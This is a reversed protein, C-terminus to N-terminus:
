LVFTPNAAALMLKQYLVAASSYAPLHLRSSHDGLVVVVPYSDDGQDQAEDTPACIELQFPSVGSPPNSLSSAGLPDMQHQCAMWSELTESRSAKAGTLYQHMARRELYSLEELIVWFSHHLESERDYIAHRQLESLLSLDTDCLRGRLSSATSLLLCRSPVISLLGKRVSHLALRRCLGDPDGGDTQGDGDSQPEGSVCGIRNPPKVLHDWLSHSIFQLPLKVGSRWAIGLIQGFQFYLQLVQATTLENTKLSLLRTNVDLEVTKYAAACNLGANGHDKSSVKSAVPIFLPFVPSQIETTVCELLRLYQVNQTRKQHEDQPEETGDSADAINAPTHSEDVVDFARYISFLDFPTEYARRLQSTGSVQVLHESLQAFLCQHSQKTMAWKKTPMILRTRSQNWFAIPKSLPQQIRIRPLDLEGSGAESPVSDSTKATCDSMLGMTPTASRRLEADILKEKQAQFLYGISLQCLQSLDSLDPLAWGTSELIVAIETTVLAAVAPRSKNEASTRNIKSEDGEKPKVYPKISGFTNMEPLIFQIVRFICRNIFLLYGIRALLMSERDDQTCELGDFVFALVSPDSIDDKIDIFHLYHPDPLSRSVAMADLLETVKRDLTVTDTSLSMWEDQNRAFDACDMFREVQEGNEVMSQVGNDHMDLPMEAISTINQIHNRHVPFESRNELMERCAVMNWSAFERKGDDVIEYWLEHHYEGLIICQGMETFISDGHAFGYKETTSPRLDLAVINGLEIERCVIERRNWKQYVTSVKKFLYLLKDQSQGKRTLADSHVVLDQLADLIPLASANQSRNAKSSEATSYSLSPPVLTIQDDKNYMSVAPYWRCSATTKGNFKLNSAAIGLNEGNRNFALTKADCDLTVQIIDGQKFIEGYSHLKTKNHWVAKNALFGYGFADSGIYNELNADSTCVGIFINKSVCTDIRVSWIHIGQDFSAQTRVTRWKKNQLNKVTLNQNLIILNKAVANADFEFPPIAPTQLFVEAENIGRMQILEEGAVDLTTTEIPALRLLYRTDPALNRIAFSGKSPLSNNDPAANCVIHVNKDAIWKSSLDFGFQRRAELSFLPKHYIDLSDGRESTAVDSVAIKATEGAPPHYSWRASAHTSSFEEIYFQLHPRDPLYNESPASPNLQVFILLGVLARTLDTFFVSSSKEKQFRTVFLELLHDVQAAKVFKSLPESLWQEEMYFNEFTSEAAPLLNDPKHIQILSLIRRMATFATYKWPLFDHMTGAALSALLQFFPLSFCSSSAVKMAAKCTEREEPLRASRIQTEVHTLLVGLIWQTWLANSMTLSVSANSSQYNRPSTANSYASLIQQQIEGFLLEFLPMNKESTETADSANISRQLEVSLMGLFLKQLRVSQENASRKDLDLMTNVVMEHNELGLLVKVFLKFRIAHESNSIWKLSFTYSNNFGSTDGSSMLLSFMIERAYQVSLIVGATLWLPIVENPAFKAHNMVDNAAPKDHFCIYDGSCDLQRVFLPRSSAERFSYVEQPMKSPWQYPQEACLFPNMNGVEHQSSLLAKHEACTVPLIGTTSSLSHMTRNRAQSETHPRLNRISYAHQDEAYSNHHVQFPLTHSATRLALDDASRTARDGFQLMMMDLISSAVSCTGRQDESVSQSSISMTPAAAAAVATADKEMQELIWSIAGSDNISLDTETACRVAWERPFGLNVLGDMLDTQRATSEAHQEGESWLQRNSGDRSDQRETNINDLPNIIGGEVRFQCVDSNNTADNGEDDDDEFTESVACSDDDLNTCGPDCLSPKTSANQVALAVPQISFQENGFDLIPLYRFSLNEEAGSLTDGGITTASGINIEAMRDANLSIAPCLSSTAELLLGTFAVGLFRGNLFFSIEMRDTDLLVGVVDNASWSEGYDSSDVHWKKCRFGDFAWSGSHDGVGQGQISDAIFDCDVFGIQFLGDTVLLVEYFWLGTHAAIAANAVKVTPFHSIGKVQMDHLEVDGSVVALPSKISFDQTDRWTTRLIRDSSTATEWLRRQFVELDSISVMKGGKSKDRQILTKMYTRLGRRKLAVKCDAGLCSKIINVSSTSALEFLQDCFTPNTMCLTEVLEERDKREHMYVLLLRLLSAKLQLLMVTQIDVDHIYEPGNLKVSESLDQRSPLHLGLANRQSHSFLITILSQIAKAQLIESSSPRRVLNCLNKNRITSGTSLTNSYGATLFMTVVLALATNSDFPSIMDPKTLNAAALCAMEFMENIENCWVPSSWMDQILQVGCFLRTSKTQMLLEPNANEQSSEISVTNKNNSPVLHGTNHFLFNHTQMVSYLMENQKPLTPFCRGREGPIMENLRMFLSCIDTRSTTKGSENSILSSFPQFILKALSQVRINALESAHPLTKTLLELLHIQGFSDPPCEELVQYLLHIWRASTISALKPNQLTNDWQALRSIVGLLDVFDKELVHHNKVQLLLPGQKALFEIDTETMDARIIWVDDIVASLTVLQSRVVSQSMLPPEDQILSCADIASDLGRDAPGGVVLRPWKFSDLAFDLSGNNMLKSNTKGGNLYVIPTVNRQSLVVAIHAWQGCPLHPEIDFAAWGASSNLSVCSGDHINRIMLRVTTLQSTKHHNTLVVLSYNDDTNNPARESSTNSSYDLAFIVNWVALENIEQQEQCSRLAIVDQGSTSCDLCIWFSLTFDSEHEQACSENRSRFTQKGAPLVNVPNGITFIAAHPFIDQTSQQDSAILSNLRRANNVEDHLKQQLKQLSVFLFEYLQDISEEVTSIIAKKPLTSRKRPSIPATRPTLVDKQSPDRSLSVSSNKNLLPSIMRHQLADSRGLHMAVAYFTDRAMIMLTEASSQGFILSEVSKLKAPLRTGYAVSCAYDHDPHRFSKATADAEESLIDSLIHVISSKAVLRALWSSDFDKGRLLYLWALLSKRKLDFSSEHSSLQKALRIFLNEITMELTCTEQDGYTFEFMFGIHEASPKVSISYNEKRTARLLETVLCSRTSSITLKRLLDHFLCVGLRYLVLNRGRQLILKQVDSLDIPKILFEYLNFVMKHMTFDGWDNACSKLRSFFASVPVLKLIANANEVINAADIETIHEQSLVMCIATAAAWFNSKADFTSTNALETVLIRPDQCFMSEYSRIDETFDLYWAVVAIMSRIAKKFADVHRERVNVKENLHNVFWDVFSSQRQEASVVFKMALAQKDLLEACCADATGTGNKNIQNNGCELENDVEFVGMEEWQLIKSDQGNEAADHVFEHTLFRGSAFFAAFFIQDNADAVPYSRIRKSLSMVVFGLKGCLVGCADELDVAWNRENLESYVVPSDGSEHDAQNRGSEQLHLMKWNIEDLIKVIPLLYPGLQDVFRIQISEWEDAAVEGANQRSTELSQFLVCVSEIANPLLVHLFTDNLLWVVIEEHQCSAKHLRKLMSLAESLLTDIYALIWDIICSCIPVRIHNDDAEINSTGSPMGMMLFQNAISFCNMQIVTFLQLYCDPMHPKEVGGLQKVAQLVNRQLLSRMNALLGSPTMGESVSEISANKKEQHICNSSHDNKRWFLPLLLEEM